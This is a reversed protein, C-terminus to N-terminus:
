NTKVGETGLMQELKQIMRVTSNNNPLLSDSKRYSELAKSFNKQLYYINGEIEYLVAVDIYKMILNKNLGFAEELRKQQIMGTVMTIGRAIENITDSQAQCSQPLSATEMNFFLSGTGGMPVRPVLVSQTLLGSKSAQVQVVSNFLEPTSQADLTIPTSGLKRTVNNSVIAIEVGEPQSRVTLSRTTECSVLGLLSTTVIAM